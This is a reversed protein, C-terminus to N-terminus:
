KWKPLKRKDEKSEEEPVYPLEDKMWDKMEGDRLHHDFFDKLRHQIDLRNSEKRLGHGEGRYSLFVVPKKLYRLISYFGFSHEWQVVKDATGHFLLLPTDMTKANFVPSESIYMETNSTPDTGLRGQGTMYYDQENSGDRVIDINFGQVLNSVGAGAAIAAFKNEQTSMYMGCHGGFSFGEYGIREKDVYGLEIVKEIAADICEHMDSHPTGVNFHIDPRLFLYGDSVYKMEPVTAGNLYPIAYRNLGYSLKEYSYVIMPLKSGEEYDEPISLVGQLPIGDDNTYDILIRKGWKYREQQPNTNTIKISSSFDSYSLYAEPFNQYDGMRYIIADSRESYIIETRRYPAAYSASKYILEKLEGNKLSYFGASKDQRNFVSLINSSALDIYRDEIEPEDEFRYDEWRFSISDKSSISRTLNQPKSNQDFPLLWLDLWRNVIIAQRDKVWGVFGYNPSFGFYDYEKDVFSVGIKETINQRSDSAFDYCWYHKGDWLIAKKGDPSIEIGTSYWSKYEKEILKKEGTKLDVRYLDNKYVDWDSIYTRNDTGIAWEDTGESWIMGQIDEGSLQVFKKADIFFIADHVEKKKREYEMIRESLLKKDKWHWVQVTSEDAKKEKADEKDLTDTVKIKIFLRENDLSWKIKTSGKNSKVAPEWNDRLGEIESVKFEGTKNFGSNIESFLLISTDDYDVKEKVENYKYGALASRSDNWSLNSYIYNGTQLTKTTRTEPDYLYIGNGRQDKSSITYAIHNSKRDVLYEGINGIYYESRNNLDYILLSQDDTTLFYSKDEIFQYDAASSYQVTFGSELHKLEISISDEGDEISDPNLEIRYAIWDSASSFKPGSADPIKYKIGENKRSIYLVNSQNDEKFYEKVIKSTSNNRSTDKKSEPEDFLTYRTTYWKGDDSLSVEHTRWQQVDDFSLPIKKTKAVTQTVFFLAVSLSFLTSPKM